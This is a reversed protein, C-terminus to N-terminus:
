SIFFFSPKQALWEFGINLASLDDTLARPRRNRRQRTRQTRIRLGCFVFALAVDMIGGVPSAAAMQVCSLRDAGINENLVLVLHITREVIPLGPNISIITFGFVFRVVISVIPERALCLSTPLAAAL